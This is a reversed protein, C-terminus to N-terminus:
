FIGTCVYTLTDTYAGPPVLGTVKAKLTSTVTANSVVGAASALTQDTLQLRGVTTATSTYPASISTASSGADGNTKTGQLGYGIAAAVSLDSTSAEAGFLLATIGIESAALCHKLQDDVLYDALHKKALEAKTMKLSEPTATDFFGAFIIDEFISPYYKDIWDHTLQSVTNRRATIVILKFSESLKKLVAYAGDIYDYTGIHGSAHYEVARREAEDHEVQWVLAWRDDYDEVTLKTGYCRNSYEVFGKANAAIVDDIDIAIIPKGM